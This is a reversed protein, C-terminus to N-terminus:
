LRVIIAACAVSTSAMTRKVSAREPAVGGLSDPSSDAFSRLKHTGADFPHAGALNQPEISSFNDRHRDCGLFM